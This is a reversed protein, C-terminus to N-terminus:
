APPSAEARRPPRLQGLFRRLLFIRERHVAVWLWLTSLLAVAVLQPLLHMTFPRALPLSLLWYLNLAVVTHVRSLQQHSLWRCRSLGLCLGAGIAALLAFRGYLLLLPGPAPHLLPPQIFFAVCLWPMAGAFALRVVRTGRGAGYAEALHSQTPRLDYCNHICGTCSRCQMDPIVLLPSHGYLREVPGMPCFHSCWGGKGGYLLGAGFSLALALLLFAALALGSRDLLVRRLPVIAFFLGMGIAPAARQARIPLRRGRSWGLRSPLANLTAMPCVNRWLGPAILFVAPLLLVFTHWFLMLGIAPACLAVMSVGLAAIVGVLRAVAWLHPPVRRARRGRERRAAAMPLTRM